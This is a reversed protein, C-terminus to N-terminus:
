KSSAEPTAAGKSEDTNDTPPAPSPQPAPPTSQAKVQGKQGRKLKPPKTVVSIPGNVMAQCALRCSPPRKKLMREEVATRPSLNFGGETVDVVCTGCQGYGGCNMLKGGFTYLDVRHEMAKLRLNAGSACDIEVNEKVFKITPM